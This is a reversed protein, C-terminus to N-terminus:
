SRHKGHRAEKFRIVAKGRPKRSGGFMEKKKPIVGYFVGFSKLTVRSGSAVADRVATAMTGLVVTVLSRPVRRPMGIRKTVTAVLENHTM